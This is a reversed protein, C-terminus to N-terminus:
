SQRQNRQWKPQSNHPQKSTPQRGTPKFSLVNNSAALCVRDLQSVDKTNTRPHPLQACMQIPQKAVSNPPPEQGLPRPLLPPPLLAPSDATLQRSQLGDASLCLRDALTHHVRTDTTHCQKHASTHLLLLAAAAAAVATVVRAHWQHRCGYHLKVFFKVTHAPQATTLNGPQNRKRETPLQAPSGHVIPKITVMVERPWRNGHPVHRGRVLDERVHSWLSQLLM